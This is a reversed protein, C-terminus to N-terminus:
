YEHRRIGIGIVMGLAALSTVLSSGGYSLLPLPLGTVPAFGVTMGINVVVHFGIMAAVGFAVLSAFRSRARQAIVVCGIIIVFYLLLIVL